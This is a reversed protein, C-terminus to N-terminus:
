YEFGIESASIFEISTRCGASTRRTFHSYISSAREVWTGICFDDLRIWKAAVPVDGAQGKHEGVFFGRRKRGAVIYPLDEACPVELVMEKDRMVVTGTCISPGDESSVFRFQVGEYKM